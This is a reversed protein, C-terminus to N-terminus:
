DPYSKTNVTTIPYGSYTVTHWGRLSWGWVRSRGCGLSSGRVVLILGVKSGHVRDIWGVGRLRMYLYTQQRM